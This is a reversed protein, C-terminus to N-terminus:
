REGAPDLGVNSGHFICCYTYICGQYGRFTAFTPANKM